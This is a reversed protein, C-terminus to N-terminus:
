RQAEVTEKLSELGKEYADGVWKNFLLGMYRSAPNAELDTEFSWTVKTGVGDGALDFAAKAQGQAGFDLKTAVRRNAVSDTIEQTGKGVSANESSWFVKQGKGSDPGTFTYQTQPDIKAWPSWVNHKRLDNIFPFVKGAPAKIVISRDLVVKSPLFFAIAILAALTVVLGYVVRMVRRM